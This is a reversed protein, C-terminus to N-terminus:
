DLGGLKELIQWRIEEDSLDSDKIATLYEAIEENKEDVSSFVAGKEEQFTRTVFKAFVKEPGHRELYGDVKVTEKLFDTIRKEMVEIWEPFIRSVLDTVQNSVSDSAMGYGYCELQIRCTAM